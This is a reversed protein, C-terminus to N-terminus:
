GNRLLSTTCLKWLFILYIVNYTMRSWIDKLWVCIIKLLHHNEPVRHRMEVVAGIYSRKFLSITKILYVDFRSNRNYSGFILRIFVKMSKFITESTYYLFISWYAEFNRINRMWTSLAALPNNEKQLKFFLSCLM